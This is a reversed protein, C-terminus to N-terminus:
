PPWILKKVTESFIDIVVTKLAGLSEKGIKDAIKKFRSAALPTSPTERVLEDLSNSLVSKDDPDLESLEKILAHVANLRSETWPYPAGCNYCYHPFSYERGPWGIVELGSAEYGKIDAHCKPCQTITAAGCRECHKVNYEPFSKSQQNILHGNLCVQSIDRKPNQHDM